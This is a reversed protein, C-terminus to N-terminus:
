TLMMDEHHRLKCFSFCPSDGSLPYLIFTGSLTRTLLLYCLMYSTQFFHDSIWVSVLGFLFLFLVVFVFFSVFLFLQRDQSFCTYM